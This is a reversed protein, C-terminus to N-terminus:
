LAQFQKGDPSVYAKRGQADTHLTWGQANTLPVAPAAPQGSQPAPDGRLKSFTSAAHPNLLTLPDATTGMGHNYQDGVSELRSQLLDVANKLVAKKQAASANESLAQLNRVVDSEAGGQGRFATTLESALAQATQKFVTPGPNGTMTKVQNEVYNLPTLSTSATGDIQDNLTGAHGIATNLSKINMASKGSTFDKRTAARAQYNVADFQPDYQGVLQVMQQWYPSRMGAGTAFAMRGEALAKVQTAVNPPLTQLFADGTAGPTGAGATGLGLPNDKKDARATEQTQNYRAVGYDKSINAATRANDGAQTLNARALEGGPGEQAYKKRAMEQSADFQTKPDVLQAQLAQIQQDLAASAKKANEQIVQPPLHQWGDPHGQVGLQNLQDAVQPMTTPDAAVTDTLFKTQQLKHLTQLATFQTDSARAQGVETSAKVGAMGGGAKVLDGLSANPNSVLAQDIGQQDSQTKQLEQLQLAGAQNRQRAGQIANAQQMIDGLSIPNYAM